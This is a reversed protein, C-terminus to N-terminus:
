AAKSIKAKIIKLQQGLDISCPKSVVEYTDKGPEKKGEDRGHHAQIADVHRSLVEITKTLTDALIFDPTDTKSDMGWRNICRRLDTKFDAPSPEFSCELVMIIGRLEHEWTKVPPDKDPNINRAVLFEKLLSAMSTADHDSGVEMTEKRTTLFGAFDYLVAALISRVNLNPNDM